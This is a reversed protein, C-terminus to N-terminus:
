VGIEKRHRKVYALALDKAEKETGVPARCTNEYPIPLGSPVVFYWGDPDNWGGALRSVWAWETYADRLTSGRPGAGIRRLGTEPPNKKWRMVNTKM